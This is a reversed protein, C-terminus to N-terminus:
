RSESRVQGGVGVQGGAQGGVQGQGAQGQVQGRASLDADTKISDDRDQRHTREKDSKHKGVNATAKEHALGEASMRETARDLGTARDTSISGNSNTIASGSVHPTPASGANIAGGAAGGLGAGMGAGAAGMGAGAAGIGGAVGAGAGVGVGAIGGAFVSASVGLALVTASILVVNAKSM